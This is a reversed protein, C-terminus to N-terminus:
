SPHRGKVLADFALTDRRIEIKVNIFRFSKIYDPIRFLIRINGPVLSIIDQLSEVKKNVFLQWVYLASHMDM